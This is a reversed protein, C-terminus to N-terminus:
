LSDRDHFSVAPLKSIGSLRIIFLNFVEGNDKWEYPRDSYGIYRM